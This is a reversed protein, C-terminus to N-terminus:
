VTEKAPNVPVLRTLLWAGRPYKKEPIGTEVYVMPTADGHCISGIFAQGETVVVHEEGHDHTLLVRTGSPWQKNWSNVLGEAVEKRL